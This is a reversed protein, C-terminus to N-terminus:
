LIQGVLIAWGSLVVGMVLAYAGNWRLGAQRASQGSLSGLLLVSATFPSTVGSIAWGGTVAVVIAAPHLGLAEPAPLLPLILSAALIPNMGVQGAAPILWVLVVLLVPAPVLALDLGSRELVPLLLVAGLHGIFAAMFLLVIEGRYQPIEHTAFRGARVVAGRLAPGTGAAPRMQAAIWLLATLPAVLMVSASVGAGSAGDVLAVALAVAGLLLLLPRLNALWRGPAPGRPSPPHRLKPKFITDLAWGVGMVLAASVLCPLVVAPWDAGPVLTTALVVSFAVPSWCLTAAFGRQVAILMRRLRHHRIDPDRIESTSQVALSGLLSIAGYMLVLGFLHGGATLALYRRGPPQHALFRGCDLIAASGAAATRVASLATFLAMIFAGREIAVMVAQGGGPVQTLAWAAQAAGIAVFVLRSAGVHLSFFIIAGLGALAAVLAPASGGLFLRALVSLLLLATLAGGLRLSAPLRRGGPQGAEHGTASITESRM